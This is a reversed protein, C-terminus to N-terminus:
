MEEFEVGPNMLLTEKACWFARRTGEQYDVAGIYDTMRPKLIVASYGLYRVIDLIAQKSPL